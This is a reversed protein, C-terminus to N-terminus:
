CLLLSILQDASINHFYSSISLGSLRRRLAEEDLPCGILQEALLASDEHGFYDGHFTLRRITFKEVDMYVEITGCGEIRRKKRINSDPSQGYNWDWGAYKMDRLTKAAELEANNLGYETMRGEHEQFLFSKLCDRFTEITAPKRMY